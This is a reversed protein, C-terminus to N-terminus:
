VQVAKRSKRAATKATKANARKGQAAGRDRTLDVSEGLYAEMLREVIASGSTKEQIARIRFREWLNTNLRLNVPKKMVEEGNRM